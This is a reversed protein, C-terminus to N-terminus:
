HLVPGGARVASQLALLAAQLAAGVAKEDIADRAEAQSRVKAQAAQGARHAQVEAMSNVEALWEGIKAREDNPTAPDQYVAAMATLTRQNRDSVGVIAEHLVLDTARAIQATIAGVKDCDSRRAILDRLGAGDLGVQKSLDPRADLIFSTDRATDNLCDPLDRRLKDLEEPREDGSVMRARWDIVATRFQALPAARYLAWGPNERRFRAMLLDRYKSM